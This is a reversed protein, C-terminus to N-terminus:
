LHRTDTFLTIDVHVWYTVEAETSVALRRTSSEGVSESLDKRCAVEKATFSMSRVGCADPMASDRLSTSLTDQNDQQGM